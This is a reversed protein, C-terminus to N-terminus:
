LWQKSEKYQQSYCTFRHLLSCVLAWKRCQLSDADEAQLSLTAGVVESL